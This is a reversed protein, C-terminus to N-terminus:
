KQFKANKLKLEALKNELFSIVDETKHSLTSVINEFNGDIDDKAVMAKGIVKESVEHFKDQLNHKADDFGDKLKERTKSGKDPAFLIGVGAGIAAGVLIAVITNGTNNSM